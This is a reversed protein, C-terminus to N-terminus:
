SMSERYDAGLLLGGCTSGQWRRVGRKRYGVDVLIESCVAPDLSLVYWQGVPELGTRRRPPATASYPRIVGYVAAASM